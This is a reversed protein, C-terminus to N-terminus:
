LIYNQLTNCRYLNRIKLSQMFFNQSKTNKYRKLYEDRGNHSILFIGTGSNAQSLANTTTQTVFLCFYLFNTRSSSKGLQDHLNMASHCQTFTYQNFLIEEIMLHNHEGYIQKVTDLLKALM